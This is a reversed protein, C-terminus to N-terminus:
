FPPGSEATGAIKAPPAAIIAMAPIANKRSSGDHGRSTPTARAIAPKNRKRFYAGNASPKSTQLKSNQLIV